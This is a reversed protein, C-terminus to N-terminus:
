TDAEPLPGEFERGACEPCLVKVEVENDSEDAVALYARWGGATEDAERGCEACQLPTRVRM